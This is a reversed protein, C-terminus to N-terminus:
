AVRLTRAEIEVFYLKDELDLLAAADEIEALWLRNAVEYFRNAVEYFRAEVTTGDLQRDEIETLWMRNAVEYFRNAVEYFRAEVTTDDLQRNELTRDTIETPRLATATASM